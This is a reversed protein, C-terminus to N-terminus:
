DEGDREEEREALPSSTLAAKAVDEASISSVLGTGACSPCPITDAHESYYHAKGDAYLAGNGQCRVCMEEGESDVIERLAERLKANEAELAALETLGADGMDFWTPEQEDIGLNHLETLGKRIAETKM